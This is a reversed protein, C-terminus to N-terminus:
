YEALLFEEELISPEFENNGEYCETIYFTYNFVKTHKYIANLVSNKKSYLEEKIIIKNDDEVQLKYIM